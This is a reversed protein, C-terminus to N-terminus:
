VCGLRDGDIPLEDSKKDLTLRLIMSGNVHQCKCEQQDLAPDVM